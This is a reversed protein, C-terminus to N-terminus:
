FGQGMVFTTASVLAIVAISTTLRRMGKVELIRKYSLPARM